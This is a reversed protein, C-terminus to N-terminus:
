LIPAYRITVVQYGIAQLIGNSKGKGSKVVDVSSISLYLELGVGYQWFNKKIQLYM